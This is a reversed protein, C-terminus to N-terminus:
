STNTISYWLKGQERSIVTLKKVQTRTQPGFVQFLINDELNVYFVLAACLNMSVFSLNMSM